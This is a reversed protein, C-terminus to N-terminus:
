ILFIGHCMFTLATNQQWYHRRIFTVGSNQESMCCCFVVELSKSPNLWITRAGESYPGYRAIDAGGNTAYWLEYLSSNKNFFFMYFDYIYDYDTIENDIKITITHVNTILIINM